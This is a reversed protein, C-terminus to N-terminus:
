FQFYIFQGGDFVGFFLIASLMMISCVTYVRLSNDTTVNIKKYEIIYEAVFAVAIAMLEAPTSWLGSAALDPIQPFRGPILAGDSDYGSAM